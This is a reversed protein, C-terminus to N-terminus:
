TIIGEQTEQKSSPLFSSTTSRLECPDTQDKFQNAKDVVSSLLVMARLELECIEKPHTLHHILAMTAISKKELHIHVEELFLCV